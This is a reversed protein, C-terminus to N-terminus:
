VCRGMFQACVVERAQGDKAKKLLKDVIDMAEDKRGQGYLANALGTRIMGDFADKPGYKELLSRNDLAKSFQTEALSYDKNHLALTGVRYYLSVLSFPTSYKEADFMKEARSVIDLIEGKNAEFGRSGLVNVRLIPPEIAYPNHISSKELLQKAEDIQNKEIKAVAKLYYLYGADKANDTAVKGILEAFLDSRGLNKALVSLLVRDEVGGSGKIASRARNVIEKELQARKGRTDRLKSEADAVKKASAGKEPSQGAEKAKLRDAVLEDMKEGLKREEKGLDRLEDARQRLEKSGLNKPTPLAIQYNLASTGVGNMIAVGDLMTASVSAMAMAKQAASLTTFTSGGGITAISVGNLIAAGVMANGGFASGITSLGAMYSGAGGGGVWSAVTSVGTAATPAGAGATFYSVAGAGVVTAGLIAIGFSKKEYFKKDFVDSFGIKEPYGHDIATPKESAIGNSAFLVTAMIM